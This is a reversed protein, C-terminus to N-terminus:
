VVSKRDEFAREGISTVSDPITISTLGTCGSFASSDIIAVGDSITVSTLKKNNIFAGEEIERVPLGYCNARIAIESPDGYSGSVTYYTGDSSLAYEVGDIAIAAYPDERNCVICSHTEHDFTHEAKDSTEGDHGCTAAHWHYHDNCSWEDSYSHGVAPITVPKDIERSANEDSFLMGCGTCEWYEEHGEDTCSPPVAERFVLDHEHCGYLAFSSCCLVASLFFIAIYGILNLRSRM